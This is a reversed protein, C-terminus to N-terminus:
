AGTWLIQSALLMGNNDNVPFKRHILTHRDQDPPNVYIGKVHHHEHPTVDRDKHAALGTIVTEAYNYSGQFWPDKVIEDSVPVQHGAHGIITKGVMIFGSSLPTPIRINLPNKVITESSGGTGDPSVLKFVRTFLQGLATQQIAEIEPNKPDKFHYITGGPSMQYWIVDGDKYVDGSLAGDEALHDGMGLDFGIHLDPTDPPPHPLLRVWSLKNLIPHAKLWKIQKNRQMEDLDKNIKRMYVKEASAELRTLSRPEVNFYNRVKHAWAPLHHPFVAKWGGHLKVERLIDSPSVKLWETYNGLEDLTM